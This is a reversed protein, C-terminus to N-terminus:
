AYKVEIQNTRRKSPKSRPICIKLIGNKFKAKIRSQDADMPLPFTRRFSAYSREIRYFNEHQDEHTQKKEGRIVLANGLVEIRIEKKSVGPIEMSIDYDNQVIGNENDEKKFWNWPALKKINM